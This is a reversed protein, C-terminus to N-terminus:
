WYPTPLWAEILLTNGAPLASPTDDTFTGVPKLSSIYSFALKLPLFYPGNLPEWSISHMAVAASQLCEAIGSLAIAEILTVPPMSRSSPNLSHARLAYLTFWGNVFDAVSSATLQLATLFDGDLKRAARGLKLIDWLQPLSNSDPAPPTMLLLPDVLESIRTLTAEYEAYKEADKPSFRAIERQTDELRLCSFLHSGNKFPTFSPPDRELFELGHDYLNLDKIITPHFLSAVYSASSIKYGPFIDEETVSCGGLITHKEVVLTDLGARCLYAAAVLGNHGGGVVVVDYEKKAM